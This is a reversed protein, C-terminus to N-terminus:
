RDEHSMNHPAKTGYRVVCLVGTELGGVRRSGFDEVAAEPAAEPLSLEGGVVVM